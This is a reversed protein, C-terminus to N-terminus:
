HICWFVAIPRERLSAEVEIECLPSAMSHVIGIGVAGVNVSTSGPDAWRLVLFIIGGNETGADLRDDIVVLVM